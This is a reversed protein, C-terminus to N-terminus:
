KGTRITAKTFGDVVKVGTMCRYIVLDMGLLHRPINVAWFLAERWGTIEFLAMAESVKM